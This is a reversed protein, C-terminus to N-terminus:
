GLRPATSLVNAPTASLTPAVAPTTLAAAAGIAAFVIASEKSEAIMGAAAGCVAASAVAAALDGLGPGLLSRGLLSFGSGIAIPYLSSGLTFLGATFYDDIDM